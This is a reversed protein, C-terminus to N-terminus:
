ECYYAEMVKEFADCFKALEPKSLMLWTLSTLMIQNMVINEAVENSEIRYM